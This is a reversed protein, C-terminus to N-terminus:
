ITDGKYGDEYVECDEDEGCLDKGHNVSKLLAFILYQVKTKQDENEYFSSDFNERKLHWKWKGFYVSMKIGCMDHM